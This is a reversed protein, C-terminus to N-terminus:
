SSRHRLALAFREFRMPRAREVDGEIGDLGASRGIRQGFGKAGEFELVKSGFPV